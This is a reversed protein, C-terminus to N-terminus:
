LDYTTINMAKKENKQIKFMSNVHDNNEPIQHWTIQIKSSGAVEMKVPKEL